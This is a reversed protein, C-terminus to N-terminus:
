EDEGGKRTKMVADNAIEWEKLSDFIGIHKGDELLIHGIFQNHGCCCSVTGVGGANLASIIKHICFDIARSKGNIPLCAQNKYEGIKCDSQCTKM